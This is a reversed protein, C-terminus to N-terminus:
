GQLSGHAESNDSLSMPLAILLDGSSGSNSDCIPTPPSAPELNTGFSLTSPRVSRRKGFLREVNRLGRENTWSFAFPSILSAPLGAGSKEKYGWHGLIANVPSWSRGEHRRIVEAKQIAQELDIGPYSPSRGRKKQAAQRGDHM